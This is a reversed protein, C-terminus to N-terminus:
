TNPTLLIKGDREGQAALAVAEKIQELPFTAQIRAKLRGGAILAALEAFVQQQRQPTAKRFWFVLWFGRLTVDKFVFSRPSVVCGKGSLAGYNVLTGGEALCQALHETAIGGVADIGLKIRAGGSMKAVRAALEDDDVLVHTAGNAKVSEIASERRVVNVVNLGRVAAIQNVYGGVASNAANQIVWDGPKLDVFEALMLLATPPNVGLMSLQLPDARGPLPIFRRADAIQHSVWTGSGVPLLVLQGVKLDTVDDAVQVVRGSGENGGVAPLPPLVGYEGTITLVDSPNIPAALVEVLAQGPGIPPLEFDLAEICDQPVSGRQAYQARKM